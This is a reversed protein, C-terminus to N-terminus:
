NTGYKPFITWGRSMAITIAEQVLEDTEAEAPMSVDLSGNAVVPLKSLSVAAKETTSFGIIFPIAGASTVANYFHQGSVTDYMCPTGTLDIVPIFNALDVGDRWFRIFMVRASVRATDSWIGGQTFLRISGPVEDSYGTAIGPCVYNTDNIRIYERDANIEVEAVFGIPRNNVYHAYSYAPTYVYAGVGTLTHNANSQNEIKYVNNSDKYWGLIQTTNKSDTVEWRALSSLKNPKLTTNIYQNGTSELFDAEINKNTIESERHQVIIDWGKASAADLASTVNADFEAELPLSVTLISGETTVPLNALSLAQNMDMGVTFDLGTTAENYFPQKSVVDFMCPKGTPDIAPVYQHTLQKGNTFSAEYLSYIARSATYVGPKSATDYAFLYVPTVTEGAAPTHPVDVEKEEDPSTVKIKGSEYENYAAFIKGNSVVFATISSSSSAAIGTNRDGAIRGVNLVKDSYRIISLYSYDSYPKVKYTVSLGSTQGYEVPLKLYQSRGSNELFEARIYGPPMSNDYGFPNVRSPINM